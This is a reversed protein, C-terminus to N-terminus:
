GIYGCLFAASGYIWAFHELPTGQDAMRYAERCLQHETTGRSEGYTSATDRMVRGMQQEQLQYTTEAMAELAQMFKPDKARAARMGAEAFGHWRRDMAKTAMGYAYEIRGPTLTDKFQIDQAM